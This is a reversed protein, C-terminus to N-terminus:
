LLASHQTASDYFGTSISQPKPLSMHFPELPLFVELLARYINNGTIFKFGRNMVNQCCSGRGFQVITSRDIECNIVGLHLLARSGWNDGLTVILIM